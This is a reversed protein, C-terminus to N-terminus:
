FFCLPNFTSCKIYEKINKFNMILFKHIQEGQQLALEKMIQMFTLIYQSNRIYPPIMPHIYNKRMYM